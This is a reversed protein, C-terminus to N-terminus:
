GDAVLGGKGRREVEERYWFFFFIHMWYERFYQQPQEM